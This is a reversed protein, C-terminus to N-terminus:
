AARHGPGAQPPRISDIAAPPERRPYHAAAAGGGGEVRLPPARQGTALAAELRHLTALTARSARLTDATELARLLDSQHFPRTLPAPDRIVGAAILHEVYPM